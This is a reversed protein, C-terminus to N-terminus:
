GQPQLIIWLTQFQLPFTLIFYNYESLIFFILYLKLNPNIVLCCSVVAYIFLIVCLNYMEDISIQMFISGMMSASSVSSLLTSTM